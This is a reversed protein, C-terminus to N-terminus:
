NGNIIVGDLRIVGNTAKSISHNHKSQTITGESDITKRSEYEVPFNKVQPGSHTNKVNWGVPIAWILEGAEWPLPWEGYTSKDEGFKNGATINLWKGAGMASTHSWRSSFLTNTFYGFQDGRNCPVEEVAINQFSVTFPMVYLRLKMGIGGFTLPAANSIISTVYNSCWLGSPEIVNVHTEREVDGCKAKLTAFTGVVPALYTKGTDNM